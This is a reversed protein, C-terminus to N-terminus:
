FKEALGSGEKALTKVVEVIINQKFGKSDNKGVSNMSEKKSDNTYIVDNECSEFDVRKINTTGQPVYYMTVDPDGGTITLEYYSEPYAKSKKTGTFSYYETFRTKEYRRAEMHGNFIGDVRYEDLIDRLEQANGISQKKKGEDGVTSDLFPGQHIFVFTRKETSLQEKLWELDEKQVFGPIYRHGTPGPEPDGEPHFNGDIIVFRYDGTDIVQKQDKIGIKERFQAKTICRLEHNGLVYYIPVHIKQLEQDVFDIGMFCLWDPDGTGEVIDGGHIVYEPQFTNMQAVFNRLPRTYKEKLYRPSEKKELGDNKNIRNPRVHTDTIIGIKLIQDTKIKKHWVPIADYIKKAEAFNEAINKNSKQISIHFFIFNGVFIIGAIFISIIIIKKM